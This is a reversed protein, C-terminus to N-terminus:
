GAKILVGSLHVYMVVLHAEDQPCQFFSASIAGLGGLLESNTTAGQVPAEFLQVQCGALVLLFLLSSGRAGSLGWGCGCVFPSSSNFLRSHVRIFAFVPGDRGLRANPSREIIAQRLREPLNRPV